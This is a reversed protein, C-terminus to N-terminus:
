WDDGFDNGSDELKQASSAQVAVQAESEAQASAAAEAELRAEEAAAAEAAALAEAQAAAAAELAAIEEPTPQPQDRQKILQILNLDLDDKATIYDTAPIGAIQTNARQALFMQEVQLAIDMDPFFEGNENPTALAKAATESVSALDTKWLAV